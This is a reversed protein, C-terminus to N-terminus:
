LLKGPNTNVVFASFFQSFVRGVHKVGTSGRGWWLVAAWAAAAAFACLLLRPLVWPIMFSQELSM